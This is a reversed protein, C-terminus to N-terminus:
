SGEVVARRGKGYGAALSALPGIVLVGFMLTFIAKGAKETERGVRGKLSRVLLM